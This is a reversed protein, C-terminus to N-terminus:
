TNSQDHRVGLSKADFPRCTDSQGRGEDYSRDTIREAGILIISKGANSRGVTGNWKLQGTINANKLEALIESTITQNRDSVVSLESTGKTLQFFHLDAWDYQGSSLRDYYSHVAIAASVSLAVFLALASFKHRVPYFLSFTLVAFYCGIVIYNGLSYFNGAYPALSRAAPIYYAGLAVLSAIALKRGMSDSRLSTFAAAILGLGGLFGLSQTNYTPAGYISMMQSQMILLSFLCGSAVYILFQIKKIM